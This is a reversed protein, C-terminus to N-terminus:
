FFIHILSLRLVADGNAQATLPRAVEDGYYIQAVGPTLLLKTGSELIKERKKDFPNGDDHSSIYHSDRICM